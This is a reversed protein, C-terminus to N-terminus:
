ISSVRFSGHRSPIKGGLGGMDSIGYRCRWTKETDLRATKLGDACHQHFIIRPIPWLFWLGWKQNSRMCPCFQRVGHKQNSMSELIRRKNPGKFTLAKKYKYIIGTNWPLWQDFFWPYNLAVFVPEPQVPRTRWSTEIATLVPSQSEQNPVHPLRNECSTVWQYQYEKYMSLAHYAVITWMMKCLFCVLYGMREIDYWGNLIM